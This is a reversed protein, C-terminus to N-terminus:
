GHQAELSLVLATLGLGDPHVGIAYYTTGGVALTDGKKASAFNTTKGTALAAANEYQFGTLPNSADYPAEFLVVVSAASGGSPTYTAAVAFEHTNLLCDTADTALQTTLASM